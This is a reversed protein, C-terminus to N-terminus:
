RQAEFGAPKTVGEGEKVFPDRGFYRKAIYEATRTAFMQTTLTPNPGGLADPLSSADCIFLRKVEWSEQHGNVVSGEPERGMRMSSQLHLYLVPWDARHVTKAGAARLIETAKRALETRRRDSRETPTYAVKPVAGHEDAPWDDALTVRNEPATEDDTLVLLTLTRDYADLKEQLAPGVLHGQTDWPGDTEDGGWSRSFTYCGFATKGPNLGVTELCGLGPFEIRSQSNQGVHPHIPHDFTGSVFDFWHTTLYRGVADNSNPLESNLWLRPSEICGASLVVVKASAEQEEETMTDRWRVGTAVTKGKREETLIRTAFANPVLKYNSHRRALPVYSVNTSRKARRTLRTGHPHNCGEYCHGCQSCGTGPGAYGPPLIANYQPRWGSRRVNRGPIEELGMKHAGYLAWADKTPLRPDRIAPLISEVREYYPILSRYTMPWDGRGVALPYTRPSNAFYHLTTGGVGAIQAVLGPGVLRRVWPGRERDAPGWRFVGSVPNTMDYESHEFADDVNAHHPGAELQLVKLGQEALEKAVVPGGGGAGIIIVEYDAM